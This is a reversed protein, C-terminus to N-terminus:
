VYRSAYIVNILDYILKHGEVTQSGERAKDQFVISQSSAVELRWRERSQAVEDLSVDCVDTGCGGPDPKAPGM